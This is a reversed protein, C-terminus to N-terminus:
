PPRFTARARGLEVAPPNAPGRRTEVASMLQGLLEGHNRVRRIQDEDEQFVSVSDPKWPLSRAELDRWARLAAEVPGPISEVETWRRVSRESVGLLQAAEDPTLNLRALNEAFQRNTMM